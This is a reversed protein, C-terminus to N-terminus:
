LEASCALFASANGNSLLRGLVNATTTPVTYSISLNNPSSLAANLVVASAAYMLDNSPLSFGLLSSDISTPTVRMTVPLPITAQGATTSQTYALGFVTFAGGANSRYYYRQCAALEGQLSNAYRRFDNAVTGPERQVGWIDFTNSQIGLSGTRDNFSSGASLWLNLRLHNGSVITKGAITPLTVSLSYRKWNTDLTVQSSPINPGIPVAVGVSGGVGFEQSFEGFIKPTGTGAKAWFSLTVTQNAFTRVDEIYQRFITLDGAASQGSTVVRAFNAAEYGPEPAAGATFAQSSYTGTGGTNTMFWRDFGFAGSTTTSTFGRQNIEFAGNIIANSISKNALYANVDSADLRTFADFVKTPM